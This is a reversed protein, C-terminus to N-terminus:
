PDGMWQIGLIVNMDDLDVVFIDVVMYSWMTISFQLIVHTCPLLTGGALKVKFGEHEMM